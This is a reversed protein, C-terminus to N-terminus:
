RGKEIQEMLYEIYRYTDKDVISTEFDNKTNGIRTKLERWMKEYDKFTLSQCCQQFGARKDSGCACM